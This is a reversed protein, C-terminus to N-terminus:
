ELLRGAVESPGAAVLWPELEAPVPEVPVAWPEAPRGDDALRRTSTSGSPPTSSPSTPGTTAAGRSGAPSRAACPRRPSWCARGRLDICSRSTPGAKPARAARRRRGVAARIEDLRDLGDRLGAEDRVVGCREWMLTACRGSSRAARARLRSRDDRRARRQGGRRRPPSPHRRRLRGLVRRGGRRGAPRLRDDRHALQRGAPERRAPRRHVRGRRVPGLVSPPTPRPISWSAAWRTTRPPRSRWGSVRSTSCRTSSSSATCAPCSRSSSRGQGVHTIDLFVGGHPGGRGEAIETYNALAVRDRTSLEM